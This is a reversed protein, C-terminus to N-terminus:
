TQREYLSALRKHYDVIADEKRAFYHGWFYNDRTTREWTVGMQTKRHVGLCVWHGPAYEEEKVIAYGAVIEM